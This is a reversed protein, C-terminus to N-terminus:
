VLAVTTVGASCFIPTYRTFNLSARLLHKMNNIALVAIFWGAGM